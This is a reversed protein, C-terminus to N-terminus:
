SLEKLLERRILELQGAERGNGCYLTALTTNGNSIILLLIRPRSGIWKLDTTLNAFPVNHKVIRDKDAMEIEFGNQTVDIRMIKQRAWTCISTYNWFAFTSLLVIWFIMIPFYGGPNVFVPLALLAYWILYLAFSQWVRKRYPSITTKYITRSFSMAYTSLLLSIDPLCM